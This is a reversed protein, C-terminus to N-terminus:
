GCAIINGSVFNGQIRIAHRNTADGALCRDENVAFWEFQQVNIGFNVFKSGAALQNEFFGLLPHEGGTACGVELKQRELGSM